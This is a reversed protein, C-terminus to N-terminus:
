KAPVTLTRSTGPVHAGGDRALVVVRYNTARSRRAVTFTYRSRNGTLLEPKARRLFGWKGSGCIKLGLLASVGDEYENASSRGKYISNVYGGGLILRTHESTPMNLTLLFRYPSYEIDAEPPRTEKSPGYSIDAQAGIWKYALTSLSGGIAPVADMKLKDDIKPDVVSPSQIGDRLTEDMFTLKRGPALSAHKEVSNWDYIIDQERLDSM